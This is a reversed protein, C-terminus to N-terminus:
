SRSAQPERLKVARFGMFRPYKRQRSIPYLRQIDPPLTPEVVRDLAFGAQSLTQVYTELSRHVRSTHAESQTELAITFPVELRVVERYEFWDEELYGWDVPSFCPHPITAVFSGNPRLLVSVSNLVEQLNVVSVLTMNAVALTFDALHENSAFDQISTNLFTANMSVAGFQQRALRISERSIDVAIVRRSLSALSATFYGLGCGVDLVEDRDCGEIMERLCPELVHTYTLDRGAELQVHRLAAIRDWEAAVQEETRIVSPHHTNTSMENM